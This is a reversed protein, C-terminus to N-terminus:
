GRLGSQRAWNICSYFGDAGSRGTGLAIQVKPEPSADHLYRRDGLDVQKGAEVRHHELVGWESKSEPDSDLELWPGLSVTNDSSDAAAEALEWPSRFRPTPVIYTGEGYSFCKQEYELRFNM